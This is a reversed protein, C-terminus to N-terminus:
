EILAEAEIEVKWRPDPLRAIVVVTATPRAEGFAAAHARRQRQDAM